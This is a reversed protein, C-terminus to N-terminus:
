HVHMTSYRTDRTSPVNDPSNVLMCFGSCLGGAGEEEQKKVFVKGGIDLKRETSRKTVALLIFISLLTPTIYRRRSCESITHTHAHTVQEETNLIGRIRHELTECIRPSVHLKRTSLPLIPFILPIKHNKFMM